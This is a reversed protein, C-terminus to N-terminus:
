EYVRWPLEVPTESMADSAIRRAVGALGAPLVAEDTVALDSPAWWRWEAHLQHELESWGTTVPEFRPGRWAFFWDVSYLREGRFTWEGRTVAVPSGVSALDVVVGTEEHFERVAAAAPSEGPEIGGGPTIWIPPKTDVPDVIRFLLVCGQPDIAIVRGSPRERPKVM